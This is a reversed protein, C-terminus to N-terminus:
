HTHNKTWELLNVKWDDFTINTGIYLQGYALDTNKMPSKLGPVYRKLETYINPLCKNDSIPVASSTSSYPYLIASSEKKTIKIILQKIKAVMSTTSEPEVMIKDLQIRINYYYSM